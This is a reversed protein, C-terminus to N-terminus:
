GNALRIGLEKAKSVMETRKKLGVTSAIYVIVDQKGKLNELEKMSRVIVPKLGSPHLGRIEKPTGFGPDAKPPYGSLQLRMPNDRGRPKRWTEQRELRYYKDWDYRLFKPKDKKKILKQLRRREKLAQKPDSM